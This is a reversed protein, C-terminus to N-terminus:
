QRAFFDRDDWRRASGERRLRECFVDLRERPWGAPSTEDFTDSPCDHGGYTLLSAPRGDFYVVAEPVAGAPLAQGVTRFSRGLGQVWFVVAIDWDCGPWDEDAKDLEAPGEPPTGGEDSDDAWESTYASTWPIEENSM